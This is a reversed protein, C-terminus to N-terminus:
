NLYEHLKPIILELAENKYESFIMHSPKDIIIMEKKPAKINEFVLKTYELTFLPDGTSTILILPCKISGDSICDSDLNFLSSIFHLPYSKLMLPDNFCEEKSKKDKFIKNIDLYLGVPIKISPFIKSLTKIMSKIEKMYKYTFKPLRTISMTEKLKSLMINHPFVAKIREDKSAYVSALIGGQSSGMVSIKDNFRDSVYTVTDYVNKLMDEFTFLKNIKPSKGHSLYNIGIVNFGNKSMDRLFEEYILPHAMTGPLFIVSPSYKDNEWISLVIPTNNSLITIEEYRSNNTM